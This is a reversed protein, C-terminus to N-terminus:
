YVAGAQRLVQRELVSELLPMFRVRRGRRRLAVETLRLSRAAGARSWSVLGALGVVLLGALRLTLGGLVSGGVTPCLTLICGVPTLVFALSAIIGIALVAFLVGVLPAWSCAWEIAPCM